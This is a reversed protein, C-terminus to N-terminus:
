SARSERDPQTVSLRSSGRIMDDLRNAKATVQPAADIRKCPRLASTENSALARRGRGRTPTPHASGTTDIKTVAGEFTSGVGQRRFDFNPPYDSAHTISRDLHQQWEASPTPLQEPGTPRRDHPHVGNAARWVAVEGILAASLSSGQPM